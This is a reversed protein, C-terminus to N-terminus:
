WVKAAIDVCESLRKDMLSSLTPQWYERNFNTKSHCYICLTILNASDSNQKDYDIHHVANGPMRCIACTNGDRRLVKERMIYFEDPYVSEYGGMWNTHNDGQNWERFCDTSCFRGVNWGLNAFYDQSSVLSWNVAFNRGCGNCHAGNAVGQRAEWQQYLTQCDRACFKKDKISNSRGCMLRGCCLCEKYEIKWYTGNLPQGSRCEMSCFRPKRQKAAHPPIAFEKGCGECIFTTEGKNWRYSHGGTYNLRALALHCSHCRKSKRDITAGCDICKKEHLRDWVVKQSVSYLKGVEKQTLGTAILREVEEKSPLKDKNGM